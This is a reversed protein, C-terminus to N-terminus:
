FLSEMTEVFKTELQAMERYLMINKDKNNEICQIESKLKNKGEIILDDAQCKDWIFIKEPETVNIIGSQVHKNSNGRNSILGSQLTEAFKNQKKSPNM